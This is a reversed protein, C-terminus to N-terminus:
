LFSSPWCFSCEGQWMYSCLEAGLSTFPSPCFPVNEERCVQVTSLWAGSKRGWPTYDALSRQEHSEGPLFVPTPPWKRRWPIKGAWPHFRSRRCKKCVRQWRLWQHYWDRVRPNIAEEQSLLKLPYPRLMRAPVSARGSVAAKDQHGGLNECTCCSHHYIIPPFSIVTVLCFAQFM